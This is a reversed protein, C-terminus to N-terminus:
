GAMDMICEVVRHVHTSPDCESLDEPDHWHAHLINKSNKIATETLPYILDFFPCESKAFKYGHTKLHIKLKSVLATRSTYSKSTREFHLIHWYEICPNSIILKLGNDRAKQIADKLSPHEDVDVVCFIEDYDDCITSTAELKKEKAFDVVSMPASGCEEGCVEVTVSDLHLKKRFKKFYDPSSKSDECVILITKNATRTPVPRSLSRPPTKQRFKKPKGKQNSRPGL